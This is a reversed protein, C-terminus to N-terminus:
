NKAQYSKLYENYRNENMVIEFTERLIGAAEEWTKQAAKELAGAVLDALEDDVNNYYFLRLFECHMTYFAGMFSRRSIEDKSTDYAYQFNKRVDNINSKYKFPIFVDAVYIDDLFKNKDYGQLKKLFEKGRYIRDNFPARSDLDAIANEFESRVYGQPSIYYDIKSFASKLVDYAYDIVGKTEMFAIYEFGESIYTQVKEWIDELEKDSFRHIRPEQLWEAKFKTIFEDDYRDANICIERLIDYLKYPEALELPINITFKLRDKDDLVISVLTLPYFNLQTVQRMLPVKSSNSIDLFPAEIHIDHSSQKIKVVVSGHPIEFYNKEANGYKGALEPNIYNLLANLVNAYRGNDYEDLVKDWYSTNIKSKTSGLPSCDFTPTINM